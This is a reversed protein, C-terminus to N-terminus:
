PILLNNAILRITHKLSEYLKVNEIRKPQLKSLADEVFTPPVKRLACDRILIVVGLTSIIMNTIDSDVPLDIGLKVLMEKAKLESRKLLELSILDESDGENRMLPM